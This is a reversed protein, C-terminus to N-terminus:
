DLLYMLIVDWILSVTRHKDQIVLVEKTDERVICGAFTHFITINCGKYISKLSSLGCYRTVNGTIIVDSAQSWITNNQYQLCVSIEGGCCFNCRIVEESYVRWIVGRLSWSWYGGESHGGWLSLNLHKAGNIGQECTKKVPVKSTNLVNKRWTHVFGYSNM